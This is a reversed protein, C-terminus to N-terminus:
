SGLKKSIEASVRPSFLPLLFWWLLGELHGGWVQQLGFAFILLMLLRKLWSLPLWPRMLVTALTLEHNQLEIRREASLQPNALAHRVLNLQEQAALYSDRSTM